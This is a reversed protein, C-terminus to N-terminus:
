AEAKRSSGHDDCINWEIVIAAESFLEFRHLRSIVKFDEYSRRVHARLGENNL